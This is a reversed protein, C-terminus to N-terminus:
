APTYIYKPVLEYGSIWGLDSTAYAQIKFDITPKPFLIGSYQEGVANLFPQWNTNDPSANWTVTKYGLVVDRLKFISNYQGLHQIHLISNSPLLNATVSLTFENWTNPQVDSLNGIWKVNDYIDLLAARYTGNAVTPWLWGHILLQGTDGTFTAPLWRAGGQIETGARTIVTDGNADIVLSADGWADPTLGDLVNVPTSNVPYLTAGEVLKRSGFTTSQFKAFYSKQPGLYQLTFDYNYPEFSYGILGPGTLGVTVAGTTYVQSGLSIGSANYITATVTTDSLTVVLYYFAEETLINTNIPTAFLDSASGNLIQHIQLRSQTNRSTFEVEIRDGNTKTRFFLRLRNDAGSPHHGANFAAVYVTDRPREKKFYLEGYVSSPESGGAQPISRALEKTKTDIDIQKFAYDDRVIRVAQAILTSTGGVSRMRFRVAQINTKDADVIGSVPFKLYTDGGASVSNLSDSFKFTDTKADQMEISSSIDFWSNTLDFHTGAAQAPFNRLVIEIFYQHTGTPDNFASIDDGIVFEPGHYLGVGLTAVGYTGPDASTSDGSFTGTAQTVRMGYFSSTGYTSPGYSSDVGPVAVNMTLTPSYRYTANKGVAGGTWTEGGFLVGLPRPDSVNYNSMSNYPYGHWFNYDLQTFTTNVNGHFARLDYHYRPEPVIPDLLTTSATHYSSTGYASNSGYDDPGAPPTVVTWYDLFSGTPNDFDDNLRSYKYISAM